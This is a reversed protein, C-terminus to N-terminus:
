KKTEKNKILHRYLVYVIDVLVRVEVTNRKDQYRFSDLFEELFVILEEDTYNSNLHYGEFDELKSKEESM